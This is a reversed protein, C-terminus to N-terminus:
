YDFTIGGSIAEGSFDFKNSLAIYSRFEATLYMRNIGYERNLNVFSSPGRGMLIQLGGGAYAAPAIGLAAGIAPNKDDDRREGFAFATLGGTGYPVLIQYDKLQLKYTLGASLPFAFLTFREEPRITLLDPNDFRGKGTTFFIGGGLVYNLRGLGRFLSREYDYLIIPPTTEDYITDFTVGSRDPNILSTPEYSGIRINGVRRDDTTPTKYHFSGESDIRILGKEAHPHEIYRPGREAPAILERNEESFASPSFFM